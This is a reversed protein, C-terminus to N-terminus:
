RRQSPLATRVPRRAAAAARRGLRCLVVLAMLLWAHMCCRNTMRGHCGDSAPHEAVRCLAIHAERPWAPLTRCALWGSLEQEQEHAAAFARCQLLLLLLTPPVMLPLLHSTFDCQCAGPLPPARGAEPSDGSLSAPLFGAACHWTDLGIGGHLPLALVISLYPGSAQWLRRRTGQLRVGGWRSGGCGGGSGGRQWVGAPRRACDLAPGLSLETGSFPSCTHFAGAHGRGAREGQPSAHHAPRAALGVVTAASPARSGLM